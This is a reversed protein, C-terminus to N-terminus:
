LRDEAIGAWERMESDNDDIYDILEHSLEWLQLWSVSEDMISDRIEEIREAPSKVMM